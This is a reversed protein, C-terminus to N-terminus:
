NKSLRTVIRAVNLYRGTQSTYDEYARDYKERLFREERIIEGHLGFVTIVLLAAFLINPFIMFIGVFYFDIGLYIPHRSLLFIGNTVLEADTEHDIGIRWSRGMHFYAILIITYGILIIFAGLVKVFQVSLSKFSLLYQDVHPFVCYLIITTLIIAFITHPLANRYRAFGEQGRAIAVPNKGTV